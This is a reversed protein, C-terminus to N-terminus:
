KASPNGGLELQLKKGRHSITVKGKEIGVVKTDGDLSGGLPILRQNGQGDTFVAAPRRGVIVGSVSYSMTPETPTLAVSGGGLTGPLPPPASVAGPLSGSNDIPFPPISIDRGGGPRRVRNPRNAAPPPTPAPTATPPAPETSALSPQKFPDRQPLAMAYAPNKVDPKEEEAAKPTEEAKSEKKEAAPPPPASGAVFQFAGVAVIVVALLALIMLKKKEDKM